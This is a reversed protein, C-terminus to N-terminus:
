FVHIKKKLIIYLYFDDFYQYSVKRGQWYLKAVDEVAVPKGGVTLGNISVTKGEGAEAIQYIAKNLVVIEAKAAEDDEYARTGEVYKAAITEIDKTNAGDRIVAFLTKAVHLGVDGGFNARVVKGGAFEVLRSISDGVISTYLHGVHLVKFPNPDSFECIVTKGSYEDCSINKEFDAKLQFSHSYLPASSSM